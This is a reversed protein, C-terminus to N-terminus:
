EESREALHSRRQALVSAGKGQPGNFWQFRPWSPYWSRPGAAMVTRPHGTGSIRLGTTTSVAVQALTLPILVLGSVTATTHLVTQFFVPLQVILGFLVGAFLLVTLSAKWIIPDRILEPSILPNHSKIEISRFFLAL